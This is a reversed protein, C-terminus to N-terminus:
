FLKVMNATHSSIVNGLWSTAKGVLSPISVSREESFATDHFRIFAEVHASKRLKAHRTVNNLFKELRM